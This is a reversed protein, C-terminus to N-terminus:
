FFLEVRIPRNLVVPIVFRISKNQNSKRLCTCILGKVDLSKYM